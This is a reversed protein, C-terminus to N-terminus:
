SEDLLHLLAGLRLETRSLVFGSMRVTRGAAFDARHRRAFEGPVDDELGLDEILREVNREEPHRALYAAGVRAASTPSRLEAHLRKSIQARRRAASAEAPVIGGTWAWAGLSGLLGLVWRRRVGWKTM